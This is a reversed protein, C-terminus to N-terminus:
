GQAFIVDDIIEPDIRTREVLARLVTAGLEGATVSSLAGLYKGVATRIPAVIAARRLAQAM